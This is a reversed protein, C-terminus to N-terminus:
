AHEGPHGRWRRLAARFAILARFAPSGFGGFGGPGGGAANPGSGVFLRQLAPHRLYYTDIRPVRLRDSEREPHGLHGGLAAMRTTVACAYHGGVADVVRSDLLGYPYAFARARRGLRQEIELKPAELEEAMEDPALARLDPHTKTHAEIDWGASHLTAVGDWDLMRLRPAGAPQSPWYNDRGVYGTTLFLTASAGHETLVPEALEALSAFGDDFTLAVADRAPEALLDALSIIAHDSQLIGRVLGRLEAATLSIASGSSDVSHLMLVARM